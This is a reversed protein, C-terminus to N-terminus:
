PIPFIESHLSFMSDTRIQLEVKDKDDTVAETQCAFYLINM